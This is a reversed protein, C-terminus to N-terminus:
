GWLTSNQCDTIRVTMYRQMPGHYISLGFTEPNQKSITLMFFEFVILIATRQMHCCFMSMTLNDPHQNIPLIIPGGRTCPSHMQRCFIPINSTQLSQKIGPTYLVLIILQTTRQMIRCNVPTNISYLKQNPPTCHFISKLLM